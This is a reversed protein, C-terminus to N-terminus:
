AVKFVAQFFIFLTVINKQHRLKKKPGQYSNKEVECHNAGNNVM